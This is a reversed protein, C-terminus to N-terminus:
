KGGLRAFCAAAALAAQYNVKIRKGSVINIKIDFLTIYFEIYYVRTLLIQFFYM